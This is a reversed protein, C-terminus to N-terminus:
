HLEIKDLITKLLVCRTRKMKDSFSPAYFAAKEANIMKVDLGGKFQTWGKLEIKKGIFELFEHYQESAETNSFMENETFQDKKRYLIGFKYEKTIQADEWYQLMKKTEQNTKIKKLTLNALPLFFSKITTLLENPTSKGGRSLYFRDEGEQTRIIVKYKREFISVNLQQQSQNAPATKDIAKKKKHKSVMKEAEKKISIIVPGTTPTHDISVFNKHKNNLFSDTYHHIENEYEELLYARSQSNVIPQNGMDPTDVERKWGASNTILLKCVDNDEENFLRRPSVIRAGGSTNLKNELETKQSSTYFQGKKSPRAGVFLTLRRMERKKQEDGADELDKPEIINDLKLEEVTKRRMLQRELSRKTVSLTNISREDDSPITITPESLSKHEISMRRKPSTSLPSGGAVSSGTSSGTEDNAACSVVINPNGMSHHQIDLEVMKELLDSESVSIRIKVPEGNDDVSQQQQQQDDNAVCHPTGFQALSVTTTNDLKDKKKGGHHFLNEIRKRGKKKVAVTGTPSVNASSSSQLQSIDLPTMTTSVPRSSPASQPSPLLGSEDDCLNTISPSKKFFMNYSTKKKPSAPTLAPDQSNADGINKFLFSSSLSAKLRRSGKKKKEKEM